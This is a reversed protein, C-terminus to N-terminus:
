VRAARLRRSTARITFISYAPPGPTVCSRQALVEREQGRRYQGDAAGATGTTVTYNAAQASEATISKYEAKRVTTVGTVRTCAAQDAAGAPEAAPSFGERSGGPPQRSRPAQGSRRSPRDQRRLWRSM